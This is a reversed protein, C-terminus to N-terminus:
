RKTEHGTKNVPTVADFLDAAEQVKAESGFVAYHNNSMIAEVMDAYNRIDEVHTALVEDRIQQRDAATFGTIYGEAAKAGLVEPTDPYDLSSIEGIIYKDMERKNCSFGRLFDAVTDFVELTERLNPDRYSAFYQYGDPSFQSMAGYAGGKVRLEQHLFNNSIVSNLVRLKGSYSYGKRFFNGGKACFQVKVPASIAENFNRLHYHNEVPEYAEHSVVGLLQPIDALCVSIEEEGGTLSLILNNTTFFTNKVWDLEEIIEYIEADLREVLDSLFHHYGLGSVIDKLHYIQSLPSLMRVIAVGMGNQTISAEMKAKLERI